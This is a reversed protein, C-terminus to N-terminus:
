NKFKLKCTKWDHPLLDKLPLVINDDVKVLTENNEDSLQSIFERCRGCPPFIIGEHNVAIMKDITNEGSTIMAAAAAHEACFGTGCKTEICTGVFINGNRTLIASGVDSCKAKRSIVRPIAVSKARNYLELFDDM